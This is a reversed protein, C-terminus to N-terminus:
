VLVLWIMAAFALQTTCIAGKKCLLHQCAVLLDDFNNIEGIGDGGSKTLFDLIFVGIVAGAWTLTFAPEFMPIILWHWMAFFVTGMMCVVVLDFLAGLILLLIFM